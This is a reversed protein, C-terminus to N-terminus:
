VSSWRERTHSAPMPVCKKRVVTVQQYESQMELRRTASSLQRWGGGAGEGLSLVGNLACGRSSIGYRVLSNL